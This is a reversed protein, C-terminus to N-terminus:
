FQIILLLFQMFECLVLYFLLCTLKPKTAIQKLLFTLNILFLFTSKDSDSLMRYASLCNSDRCALYFLFDISNKRESLLIARAQGTDLTVLAKKKKQLSNHKRNIRRVRLFSLASLVYAVYGQNCPFHTPYYLDCSTSHLLANYQITNEM